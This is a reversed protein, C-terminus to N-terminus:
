KAAFGTARFIRAVAEEYAETIDAESLKCPERNWLVWSGDVLVHSVNGGGASFQVTANLDTVPRLELSKRLLVIDAAMGPTLTGCIKHLGLVKAPITTLSEIGPRGFDQKGNRESNLQLFSALRWESFLDAGDNSAPCDTAIAIPIGHRRFMEIPALKEYIMQSAPCYAITVGKSKLLSADGEEASVLHVALTQEGLVGCQDAYVVPSVKERGEVRTREGSTQSLHMHIPLNEAKALCGLETLLKRSVTDAAHPAIAPTIRNSFPWKKLLNGARRLSEEGPFAGGLDLVTEGIVGRLGLTDIAKGVGEVFYYHDAFCTTGSRLGSLIYSWSLPEIMDPALSKEAPFLFKEIMEHHGHGLGRFFGMACHTHANILGPMAIYDTGSFVEYGIASEQGGQSPGAESIKGASITLSGNRVVQGNGVLYDLDKIVFSKPSQRPDIASLNKVSKLGKRRTECM